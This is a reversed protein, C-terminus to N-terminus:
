GILSLITGFELAFILSLLLVKKPHGFAVVALDKQLELFYYDIQYGTDIRGQWSAPMRPDNPSRVIMFDLTKIPDLDRHRLWQM